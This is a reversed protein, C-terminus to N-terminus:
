TTSTLPKSSGLNQIIRVQAIRFAEFITSLRDDILTPGGDTKDSRSDAKTIPADPIEATKTSIDGVDDECADVVHAQLAAFRCSDIHTTPCQNKEQHICVEKPQACCECLDTYM